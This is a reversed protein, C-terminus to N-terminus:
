SVSGISKILGALYDTAGVISLFIVAVSFYAWPPAGLWAAIAAVIISAIFNTM